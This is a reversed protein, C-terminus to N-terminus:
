SSLPRYAGVARIGQAESIQVLKAVGLAQGVNVKVAEDVHAVWADPPEEGEALAGRFHWYLHRVM